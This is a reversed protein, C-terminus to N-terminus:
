PLLQFLRSYVLHKYIPKEGNELVEPFPGVVADAVPNVFIPVSVRNRKANVSVRHEISKYRDNSVIQLVDGINIVLAGKVPNVHIWQDARAGQVYLGGVDDQLLITISSIDSQRGAGSVLEPHPCIPYHALIISAVSLLVIFKKRLTHDLALTSQTAIKYVKHVLPNVSTNLHVTPSPSNEKLYKRREENPLDFFKHVAAKLNELIDLPIGHNIIQFFGWKAAAECISGAVEPDDWNSVDIIPISEELVVKNQDLRDKPPLIYREPLTKIGLKSLGSVGNGPSFYKLAEVAGESLGM